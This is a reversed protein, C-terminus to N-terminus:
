HAHGDEGHSAGAGTVHETFAATRVEGAHKFQLYLRYGGARPLAVDFRIERGATARDLPHVHQFALDGERLAVLHGRAGLYPEVDDVPRGHESITFSREGGSREVAVRYGDGASASTAEPPLPRAAYRGGVGVDAHLMYSAGATAFDAFVRHPGSEPFRVAVAWRGNGIARPHLHQYGTLDHRAVLLHMEREHEVDFDEIARGARDVIRFVLEDSAGRAFRRGGELVLRRPVATGPAGSADARHDDGHGGGDAAKSGHASRDVDVNPDIAAGAAFAGGFAAALVIAFLGIRAPASV